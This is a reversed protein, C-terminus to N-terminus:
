CGNSVDKEISGLDNISRVPYRGFAMKVVREQLRKPVNKFDITKAKLEKAYFKIEDDETSFKM